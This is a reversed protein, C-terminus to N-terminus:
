AMTYYAPHAGSTTRVNRLPSFYRAEIPNPFGSQGGTAYHNLYIFLYYIFLYIFLYITVRRM